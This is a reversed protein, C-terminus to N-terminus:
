PARLLGPLSWHGQVFVNKAHSMFRLDKIGHYSGMGSLRIGPHYITWQDLCSWHEQAGDQLSILSVDVNRRCAAQDYGVSAM